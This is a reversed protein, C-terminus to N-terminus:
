LSLPWGLTGTVAYRIAGMVSLEVLTVVLGSL